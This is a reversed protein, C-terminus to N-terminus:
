NSVYIAGGKDVNVKKTSNSSKNKVVFTVRTVLEQKLCEAESGPNGSFNIINARNTFKITAGSINNITQCNFYNTEIKEIYHNPALTFTQPPITISSDECYPQYSFTTGGNISSSTVKIQWSESSVNDNCKIRSQSNSQVTRLLQMFLSSANKLEQEENFRRFGPITVAALLIIITIAVMIEILTFGRISTNKLINKKKPM